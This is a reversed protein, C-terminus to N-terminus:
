GSRCDAPMALSGNLHGTAKGVTATIAVTAGHCSKIAFDLVELQRQSLELKAVGDRDRLKASEPGLRFVFDDPYGDVVLRAEVRAEDGRKSTVGVKIEKRRLAGQETGTLLELKPKPPKPHPPKAAAGLGSTAGLAIAAVAVLTAARHRRLAEQGRGSRGPGSGLLTRM